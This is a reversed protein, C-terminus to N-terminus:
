TSAMRVIWEGDDSRWEKVFGHGTMRVHATWATAGAEAMADDPSSYMGGTLTGATRRLGDPTLIVKLLFCPDCRMWAPKPLDQDVTFKPAANM